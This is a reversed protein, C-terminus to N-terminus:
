RTSASSCEKRRIGEKWTKRMFEQNNLMRKEQWLETNMYQIQAGNDFYTVFSEETLLHSLLWEGSCAKM